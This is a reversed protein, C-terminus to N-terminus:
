NLFLLGASAQMNQNTFDEVYLICTGTPDLTTFRFNVEAAELASGDPKYIKSQFALNAPVAGASMSFCVSAIAILYYLIRTYLHRHQFMM